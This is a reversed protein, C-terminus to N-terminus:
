AGKRLIQLISYAIYFSYTKGITKGSGDWTALRTMKQEAENM